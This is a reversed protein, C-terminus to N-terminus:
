LVIKTTQRGIKVIYVGPILNLYTTFLDSTIQKTFLQKGTSEYISLNRNDGGSIKIYNDQYSINIKNEPFSIGSFGKMLEFKWRLNSINGSKRNYINVTSNIVRNLAFNIDKVNVICYGDDHPQITWKQAENSTKIDAVVVEVNNSLTNGTISLCKTEDNADVIRFAMYDNGTDQIKWVQHVPSNEDVESNLIAKMDPNSTNYSLYTKSNSWQIRYPDGNVPVTKMDTTQWYVTQRKDHLDYLPILSVGNPYGANQKFVFKLPNDQIKELLNNPTVSNDIFPIAIPIEDECYEHNNEVRLSFPKSKVGLDGALLVPGYFVSVISHDDPLSEYWLDLPCTLTIVDGAMWTKELQIYSGPQISVSQAQGNIRVGVGKHAWKPYRIFISRPIADSEEITIRIQDTTPIEGELRIKLGKEKWHLASPIFLNIYLNNEDHAYIAKSYKSANEMGSGCCCWNATTATSYTKYHGPQLPMYYCFAGTNKPHISPLIHNYLAREYHEIISEEGTFEYVKEAIKLTNYTNCTEAARNQFNSSYTHPSFINPNRFGEWFSNGGIVLTQYNAIYRYFNHICEFDQQNGTLEYQRGRALFKALTTNAHIDILDKKIQALNNQECANMVAQHNFKRSLELHQPNGSVAYIDAFVENMGGHEAFLMYQFRDYSLNKTMEYVWDALKIMIEKAKENGTYFYADRIGAFVKHETYWPVAGNFYYFNHFNPNPDINPNQNPRKADWSIVLTNNPIEDNFVERVWGFVYLGNGGFGSARNRYPDNKQCEDLMDILYNVKELAIESGTSAYMMSLASLYHGMTSSGGSEWGGYPSEKSPLNANVLFWHLYRDPNLTETLYKLDLDQRQKFATGDLLRVEELDFLKKNYM